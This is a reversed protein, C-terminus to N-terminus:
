EPVQDIGATDGDRCKLLWAAFLAGHTRSVFQIGTGATRQGVIRAEVGGVLPGYSLQLHQGVYGELRPALFAGGDSANIAVRECETGSQQVAVRLDIPFRKDRRRM